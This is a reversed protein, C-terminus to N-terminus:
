EAMERETQLYAPFLTNPLETFDIITVATALRALMAQPTMGEGALQPLVRSALQQGFYNYLTANVDTLAERVKEVLLDSATTYEAKFTEATYTQGGGSTPGGPRTPSSGGGGGSGGPPGSRPSISAPICIGCEYRRQLSNRLAHRDCAFISCIGCGGLPDGAPGGGNSISYSGTNGYVCLYCTAAM